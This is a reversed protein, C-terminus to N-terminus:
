GSEAPKGVLDTAPRYKAGRQQERGGRRIQEQDRVVEAHREGRPHGGPEGGGQGGTRAIDPGALLERGVAPTRIADLIRDIRVNTDKPGTMVSTM